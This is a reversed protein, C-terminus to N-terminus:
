ENKKQEVNIYIINIKNSIYKKTQKNSQTYKMKKNNNANFVYIYTINAHKYLM